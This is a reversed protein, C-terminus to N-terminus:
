MMQLNTLIYPVPPAGHVASSPQPPKIIYGSDSFGINQTSCHILLLRYYFYNIQL